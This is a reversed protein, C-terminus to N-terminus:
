LDLTNTVTAGGGGEALNAHDAGFVEAVGQLTELVEMLGLNEILFQLEHHLREGIDTPLSIVDHEDLAVVVDKAWTRCTFAEGNRQSPLGDAPVGQIVDKASEISKVSSVRLLAILSM